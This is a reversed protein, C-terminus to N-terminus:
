KGGTNSNVLRSKGAHISSAFFPSHSSFSESLSDVSAEHFRRRKISRQMPDDNEIELPRGRSPTDLLQPSCVLTRKTGATAHGLTLPSAVEM